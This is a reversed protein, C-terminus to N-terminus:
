RKTADATVTVTVGPAPVGPAPLVVSSNIDVTLLTTVASFDLIDIGGSVAEGPTESTNVLTSIQDLGFGDAFVYTDNGLGGSLRDNGGGGTLKDDGLGGILKDAQPGGTVEDNGVSGVLTVSM